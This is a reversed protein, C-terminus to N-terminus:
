SPAAAEAPEVAAERRAEGIARQVLAEDYNSAAVIEVGEDTRRNSLIVADPGHAERVLQLAGRMDAAVFRRINM